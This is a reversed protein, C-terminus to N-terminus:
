IEASIAFFDLMLSIFLFCVNKYPGTDGFKLARCLTVIIKSKDVGHGPVVSYWKTGFWKRAM